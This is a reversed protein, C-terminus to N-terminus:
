GSLSCVSLSCIPEKDSPRNFPSRRPPINEYSLSAYEYSLPACEYSLSACSFLRWSRTVKGRHTESCQNRVKIRRRVTGSRAGGEPPNSGSTRKAAM